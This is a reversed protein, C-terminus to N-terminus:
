IFNLPRELIELSWPFWTGAYVKAFEMNLMMQQKMAELNDVLHPQKHAWTHDFWRFESANEVLERDGENEDASGHEFYKGSFGLNLQFGPVLKQLTHQTIIM